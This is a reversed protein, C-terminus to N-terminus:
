IVEGVKIWKWENVNYQYIDTKNIINFFGLIETDSYVFIIDGRKIDGFFEKNNIRVKM